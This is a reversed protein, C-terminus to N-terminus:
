RRDPLRRLRRAVTGFLQAHGDRRFGTVVEPRPVFPYHRFGGSEDRDLVLLAVDCRGIRAELPQEPVRLVDCRGQGDQCRRLRPETMVEGGRAVGNRETRLLILPGSLSTM